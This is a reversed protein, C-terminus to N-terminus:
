SFCSKTKLVDLSFWTLGVLIATPLNGDECITTLDNGFLEGTKAVPPATRELDLHPM